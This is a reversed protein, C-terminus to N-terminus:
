HDSSAYQLGKRGAPRPLPLELRDLAAAASGGASKPRLRSGDCASCCQATAPAAGRGSCPPAAAATTGCATDTVLLPAAWPCISSSCCSHAAAGAATATSSAADGAGAGLKSGQAGLSLRGGSTMAACHEAMAATWTSVVLGTGFMIGLRIPATAVGDDHVSYTQHAVWCQCGPESRLLPQLAETSGGAHQLAAGWQQVGQARQQSHHHRRGLLRLTILRGCLRRLRVALCCVKKCSCRELCRRRQELMVTIRLSSRQRGAPRCSGGPWCAGGTHVKGYSVPWDVPNNNPSAHPLRICQAPHSSPMAVHKRVAPPLPLGCSSRESPAGTCSGRGGQLPM